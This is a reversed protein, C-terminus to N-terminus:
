TTRLRCHQEMRGYPQSQRTTRRAVRRSQAQQATANNDAKWVAQKLYVFSEPAIWNQATRGDLRKNQGSGIYRDIQTGTHMETPTPETPSVTCDLLSNCQKACTSGDIRDALLRPILKLPVIESLLPLLLLLTICKGIASRLSFSNLKNLCM